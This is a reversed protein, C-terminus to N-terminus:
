WRGLLHRGALLRGVLKEAFDGIKKPAAGLIRRGASSATGGVDRAHKKSGASESRTRRIASELLMPEGRMGVAAQLAQRYVTEWEDYDVDLEAVTEFLELLRKRVAPSQKEGPTARSEGEGPGHEEWLKRIREEVKQAEASTTELGPTRPAREAIVAQVRAVEIKQGRVTVGGPYLTIELERGRFVELKEPVESSITEGGLGRMLRSLVRAHWPPISRKLAFGARRLAKLLEDAIEHYRGPPSILALDGQNWGAMLALLKRWPVAVCVILFAAALAATISFGAALRRLLPPKKKSRSRNRFVLGVGMPVAIALAIWIARVIEQPAGKPIPLLAVVLAMPKPFIAGVLLIPWAAAAAVAASLLTQEKRSVRGFVAMVSWGFLAELVKGLSKQLLAILAQLIAM